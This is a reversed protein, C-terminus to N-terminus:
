ENEIIFEGGCHPCVVTQRVVKGVVGTPPVYPMATQQVGLALLDQEGPIYGDYATSGISYEGKYEYIDVTSGAPYGGRNLANIDITERCPKGDKFFAVVIDNVPKGNVRMSYDQEYSLVKAQYQAGFRIANLRHIINKLTGLIGILPIGGFFLSWIALFGVPAGEAQGFMVWVGIAVAVFISLFIITFIDGGSVVKVRRNDM